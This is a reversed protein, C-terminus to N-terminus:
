GSWFAMDWYPFTSVMTWMNQMVALSKMLFTHRQIRESYMKNSQHLYTKKKVIKHAEGEQVPQTPALEITPANELSEIEDIPDLKKSESIASEDNNHRNFATADRDAIHAQPDYAAAANGSGEYDPQRRINTPTRYQLGLNIM